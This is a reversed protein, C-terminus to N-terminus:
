RSSQTERSEIEISVENCEKERNLKSCTRIKGSQRFSNTKKKKKSQQKKKINCEVKKFPNKKKKKKKKESNNKKKKKKLNSIKKYSASSM